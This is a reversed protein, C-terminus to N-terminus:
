EGPKKKAFIGVRRETGKMLRVFNPRLAWAVLVTTMLSYVIPEAPGGQFYLIVFVIVHIVAISFTAVSAYGVVMVLILGLPVVLLIMPPWFALAAGTNPGAGAGASIKGTLLYLWLSWNHGFVSAVGALAHAWVLDPAIWRALAVALYGKLIDLLATALGLGFGGARMANTGGTRGSGIKTIDEGKILRLLFYGNPLAGLAYGVIITLITLLLPQFSYVM